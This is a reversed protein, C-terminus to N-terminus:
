DSSTFLSCTDHLMKNNNILVPRDHHVYSHRRNPSPLPQNSLGLYSKPRSYLHQCNHVNFTLTVRFLSFNEFLQKTCICDTYEYCLRPKLGILLFLFIESIPCKPTSIGKCGTIKGGGWNISCLLPSQYQGPFVQRFSILPKPRDSSSVCVLFLHLLFIWNWTSKGKGNIIRGEEM